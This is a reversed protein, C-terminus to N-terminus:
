KANLIDQYCQLLDYYSKGEKFPNKSHGFFKEVAEAKDPDSQAEKAFKVILDENEIEVEDLLNIIAAVKINM